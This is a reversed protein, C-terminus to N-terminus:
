VVSVQVQALYLHMCLHVYKLNSYLTHRDIVKDTEVAFFSKFDEHGVALVPGLGRDAGM